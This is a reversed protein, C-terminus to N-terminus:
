DYMRELGELGVAVSFKALKQTCLPKTFMDAVNEDTPVWDIELICELHRERICHWHVALYKTMSDVKDSQLIGVAASNDVMLRTPPLEYGFENLLGRCFVMQDSTMSAAVYEGSSASKVVSPTKVSKWLIASGLFFVVMGAVCRCTVPCGAFDSDSFAALTENAKIRSSQTNAGNYGLVLQLHATGALYRCVHRAHDLLEVTPNGMFRSLASAAYSLDPRTTGALYLMSGVMAAYSALEPPTGEHATVNTLKVGPKLPTSVPRVDNNSFGHRELFSEILQPQSLSITRRTRNRKHLIGLFIQDHIEGLHRGEFEKLIRTFDRRIEGSPGTGATDDVHTFVLVVGGKGPRLFLAPDVVSARYGLAGEKQSGQTCCTIPGDAKV